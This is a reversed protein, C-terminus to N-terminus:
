LNVKKRKSRLGYFKGSFSAILSMGRSVQDTKNEIPELIKIKVHYSEFFKELYEYGFRTLRDKYLIYVTDVKEEIVYQILKNLGKRNTNLGSGIDTIVEIPKDQKCRSCDWKDKLTEKKNKNMQLSEQM